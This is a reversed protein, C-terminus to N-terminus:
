KWEGEPSKREVWEQMYGGNKKVCDKMEERSFLHPAPQQVEEQPLHKRRINDMMILWDAVAEDSMDGTLLRKTSSEDFTQGVTLEEGSLNFLADQLFGAIYDLWTCINKEPLLEQMIEAQKMSARTAKVILMLADRSVEM